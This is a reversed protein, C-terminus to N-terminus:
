LSPSREAVLRGVLAGIAFVLAWIPWVTLAVLTVIAVCMGIGTIALHGRFAKAVSVIIFLVFILGYFRWVQMETLASNDSMMTVFPRLPNTLLSGTVDPDVYWNSVNVDPLVDTPTELTIGATGATAGSVLSGLTM